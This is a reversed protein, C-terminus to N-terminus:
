YMIRRLGSLRDDRDDVKRWQLYQMDIKRRKKISRYYSEVLVDSLYILHMGRYYKIAGISQLTNHIDQSTIGTRQAIEEISMGDEAPTGYSMNHIRNDRDNLLVELIAETWYARYGLLGLDSLPKEPSGQKGEALSLTYSFAILLRGYGKRQFQPLTLICAVNYNYASNKEKSFYGIFHVGKDDTNCMIYYYFPDVDFYLTKHDLFLKSLLCLNRCYTRQREGDVEFFSIGEHRYIENGPPHKLRCKTMHRALQFASVHPTLCFECLHMVPCQTFEEPYPSFYWTEVDYPGIQIREINRIGSSADSLQMMSGQTRLRDIEREMTLPEQPEPPRQDDDDEDDGLADDEDDDEDDDRETMPTMPTMPTSPVPPTPPAAVKSLTLNKTPPRGRKPAPKGKANLMSRAVAKAVLKKSSNSRKSMGKPTAEGSAFGLKKKPYEIERTTDFDSSPIWANCRKNYNEYQVHYDFGDPSQLLSPRILLVTARKITRETDGLAQNNVWVRAERELPQHNPMM